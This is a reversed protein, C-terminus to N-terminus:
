TAGRTGLLEYFTSFPPVHEGTGLPAPIEAYEISDANCKILVHLKLYWRCKHSMDFMRSEANQM